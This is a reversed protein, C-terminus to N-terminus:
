SSGFWPKCLHAPWFHGFVWRGETWQMVKGDGYWVTLRRCARSYTSAEIEANLQVSVPILSGDEADFASVLKKQEILVATSDSSWEVNKVSGSVQLRAIRGAGATTAWLEAPEAQRQIFARHGSASVSLFDRPGLVTHVVFPGPRGVPNRFTTTGGEVSYLLSTGGRYAVKTPSSYSLSSAHFLAGSGGNNVLLTSDDPSLSITPTPGLGVLGATAAGIRMEGMREGSDLSWRRLVLGGASPRAVTIVQRRREDVTFRVEAQEGSDRLSAIREGTPLRYLVPHVAGGEASPVILRDLSASVFAMGPAVVDASTGDMAEAVEPPVDRIRGGEAKRSLLFAVFERHGGGAAESRWDLYTLVSDSAFAMQNAEAAPIWQTDRTMLDVAM